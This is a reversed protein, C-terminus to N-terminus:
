NSLEVHALQIKRGIYHEWEGSKVTLALMWCSISSLVELAGLLSPNTGGVEHGHFYAFANERHISQDYVTGVFKWELIKILDLIKVYSNM